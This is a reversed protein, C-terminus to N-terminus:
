GIESPIAECPLLLAEVCFENMVYERLDYEVILSWFISQIMGQIMGRIVGQIMGQIVGQIM